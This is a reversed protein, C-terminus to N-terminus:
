NQRIEVNLKHSQQFICEYRILHARIKNEQESIRIKKGAAVGCQLRPVATNIAQRGTNVCDKCVKGELLNKRRDM